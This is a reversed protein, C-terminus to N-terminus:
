KKKKNKDAASKEKEYAENMGETVEATIDNVEKALLISGLTKSYSLIYDYGKDKNYEELYNDLKDKLDKNFKDQEKLLQETLAADRAELSQQMQTLKKVSSEYEAQTLTGAQAKRQAALYDEQFKKQSRKLENSMSKQHTELEDKKELFYTYHAQLTDINVFAIKGSASVEETDAKASKDSTQDGGQGRMVFLAIVGALALVSLVTPLQKM